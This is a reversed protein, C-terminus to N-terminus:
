RAPKIPVKRWGQTSETFERASMCWIVLKKGSLYDADGQSRRFLNIRAPTAGSGRVGVLDVAFGLEMALQDALGAGTSLMDAGGAHFVLTHSDGLLVVPSGRDPEVNGGTDESRVMRLPLVERPVAADNLARWLDGSIQVQREEASLEMKEVKKLWPRDKIEDALLKATLVCARGSWHTDQKCYMAGAEDLRKAMLVPVLDIVKVGADSLVRCFQQFHVDLRPPLGDDGPKVADTLMDPYVIAKPPVPVFILEIGAKDLQQKFDLIPPLPDADDAKAKSAKAAADGWFQGVSVHRLEPGFFLWGDKGKVTMTEAKEAEAAKAACDAAFSKLVGADAAPAAKANKAAKPEGATAGCGLMGALFLGLAFRVM